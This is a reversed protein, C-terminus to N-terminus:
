TGTTASPTPAPAAPAGGGAGHPGRDGDHCGPPGYRATGNNEAAERAASEGAEHAPDENSGRTAPSAASKTAARATLLGGGVAGGVTLCAAAAV